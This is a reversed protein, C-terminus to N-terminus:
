ARRLWPLSQSLSPDQGEDEKGWRDKGRMAAKRRRAERKDKEWKM